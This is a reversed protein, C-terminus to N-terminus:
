QPALPLKITFTTGRGPTSQVTVEGKHMEVISKVIALGLGSGESGNSNAQFFRDFIRPLYEARIGRGNDQVTIVAYKEQRAVSVVIKGNSPTYRISNDLLNSIMQELLAIDGKVDATPGAQFELQRGKALVEMSRITSRCLSNLEVLEINFERVLDLRNLTLLDKILKNMKNLTIHMGELAKQLAEPDDKVGRRLVDVYGILVTLPTRLQHSTDALFQLTKSKAEKEESVYAQLRDLMQNFALITDHAEDRVRPVSIRNELNGASISRSARALNEMPRLVSKILFFWLSSALLFLLLFGLILAGSLSSLAIDAEDLRVESQIAGILSDNVDFIPWICTLTRYQDGEAKSVLKFPEGTTVIHSLDILSPQIQIYRPKGQGLFQVLEGKDNLLYFSFDPAQITSFYEIIQNTNNIRINGSPETGTLVWSVIENTQRCRNAILRNEIQTHMYTGLTVFIAVMILIYIFFLRWRLSNILAKM